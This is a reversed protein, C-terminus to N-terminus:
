KYIPQDKCVDKRVGKRVYKRIQNIKIFMKVFVWWLGLSESRYRSAGSGARRAQRAGELRVGKRIGNRVNTRSGKRVDERITPEFSM